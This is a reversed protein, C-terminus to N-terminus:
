IGLHYTHHVKTNFTSSPNSKDNVLNGVKVCVKSTSPSTCETSRLCVLTTPVDEKYPFPGVSEPTGPPAM